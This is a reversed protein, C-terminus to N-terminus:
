RREGNQELLTARIADLDHRLHNRVAAHASTLELGAILAPDVRVQLTVTRGLAAGFAAECARQEATSLARPAALALPAGQAAFAARTEPPLAALAEAAGGIFGEVRAEPPMRELLRGAVEIALRVADEEIAHAQAARAREIEGHADARLQAAEARASALLAAKHADADAQAAQLTAERSAVLRATEDHAASQEAQAARRSAEADALLSQAAKQRAAVIEAVPRFLFRALLWVLVLANVTQLALTSWDIHM